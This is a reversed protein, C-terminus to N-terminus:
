LLHRQELRWIYCFFILDFNAILWRKNNMEQPNRNWNIITKAKIWKKCSCKRLKEVFYKKAQGRLYFVSNLSNKRHCRPAIVFENVIAVNVCMVFIWNCIINLCPTAAFWPPCLAFPPCFRSFDISFVHHFSDALVIVKGFGNLHLLIKKRCDANLMWCCIDDKVVANKKQICNMAYYM